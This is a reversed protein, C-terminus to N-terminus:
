MGGWMELNADDGHVVGVLPTDDLEAADDALVVVRDIEVLFPRSPLHCHHYIVGFVTKCSGVVAGVCRVPSVEM